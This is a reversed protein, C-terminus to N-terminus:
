AVGAIDLEDYFEAIEVPRRCAAAVYADIDKVPKTSRGVIHRSLLVAGLPSVVGGAAESLLARVTSLNKIGLESARAMPVSVSEPDYTMDTTRSEQSKVRSEAEDQELVQKATARAKGGKQGAKSRESRLHEIDANTQQHEAYNWILYDDGDVTLSPREPHNATLEALARAKWTAKAAKVSVRGDLGNMRSYGNIEVFVRFAADSLPKIKPHMWFDNPFTM